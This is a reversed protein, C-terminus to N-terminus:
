QSQQLAGDTSQYTAQPRPFSPIGQYESVPAPEDDIQKSYKQGSAASAQLRMREDEDTDSKLYFHFGINLEPIEYLVALILMMMMLGIFLYFTTAVKYLPRLPQDPSDGPIYDGLGVTTLSIFCYYFADLYNWNPEITVYIAAPILYFFVIVLIIIISLHLLQIHFVKYLHGLKRFMFQLFWATPIMLREVIATFMILTLPIGIIAYLICFGKGAESLPTVRGYGITTIVTGAFFMSQGFSWNPNSSTVNRVASIGRNTARVIKVIFEELEADSICTANAKFYSRANYIDTRMDEEVPSEVLSFVLAGFCLYIIYVLLLIGFRVLNMERDKWREVNEKLTM